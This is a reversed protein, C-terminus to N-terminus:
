TSGDIEAPGSTAGPPSLQKEYQWFARSITAGFARSVGSLPGVWGLDATLLGRDRQEALCSKLLTAGIGLGRRDPETVVPGVEHVRNVGFCGFGVCRDDQLALYVGADSSGLVSTSEATWQSGWTPVFADRLRQADGPVGRRVRIGSRRLQDLEDRTDLSAVTLDVELDVVCPGREYGLDEAFCVAPTYRLDVGPWAFHPPHGAMLVTTCGAAALRAELDALLRRGVGQLRHDRGVVFMDVFGQSDGGDVQQVSGFCTGLLVPGRTAVLAIRPQRLLLGPLGAANRDLVLAEDCLRGVDFLDAARLERVDM